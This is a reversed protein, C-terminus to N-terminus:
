FSAQIDALVNKKSKTKEIESCVEEVFNELQLRLLSTREEYNLENEGNLSSKNLNYKLKYKILKFKNGILHVVKM